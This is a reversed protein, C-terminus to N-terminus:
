VVHEDVNKLNRTNIFHGQTLQNRGGTFFTSLTTEIEKINKSLLGFFM